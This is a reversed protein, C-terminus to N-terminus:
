QFIISDAVLVPTYERLSAAKSAKLLPKEKGFLWSYHERALRPVDNKEHGMKGPSIQVCGRHQICVEARKGADPAGATRHAVM